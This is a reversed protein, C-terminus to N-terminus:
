LYGSTLSRDTNFLETVAWDPIRPTNDCTLDFIGTGNDDAVASLQQHRPQRVSMAMPAAKRRDLFTHAVVKQLVSKEVPRVHGDKWGLQGRSNTRQTVKATAARQQVVVAEIVVCNFAGPASM